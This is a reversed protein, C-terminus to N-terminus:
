KKPCVTYNNVHLYMTDFTILICVVKSFTLYESHRKSGVFYILVALHMLYVSYSLKVLVQFVPLSLFDNLRGGNGTSCLFVVMGTALAWAQRACSNFFAAGYANYDPATLLFHHIFMLYFAFIVISTWIFYNTVKPIKLDRYRYILFGFIIGILWAPMRVTTAQYINEYFAKDGETYLAGYGNQTTIIFTYIGSMICACICALCTKWPKKQLYILIIPSLFFLQSDVALYWSQEVCQNNFNVFNSAFLMTAWGTLACSGALKRSVLSWVPGDSLKKFISIYFLITAFLAPSLRLIRYLYLPIVPIGGRKKLLKQNKLVGYSLLLGSLCLFTDVSYSGSLVAAAEWTHRWQDAYLGNTLGSMLSLFTRHGIIVWLMCIVKLGSISGLNTMGTEERFEGTNSFLKKMNSYISFAVIYSEQEGELQQHILLDYCTCIILLIIYAAFGWIIYKDVVYAEVEKGKSSCMVDQFHFHIPLRFTVELYDWLEQLNGLSCSDPICIGYTVKFINKLVGFVKPNVEIGAYETITKVDWIVDFQSPHKTSKTVFVTCYQGNIVTDNQRNESIDICQDYNGNMNIHGLLIGSNIKASADV